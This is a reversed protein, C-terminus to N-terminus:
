ILFNSKHDCFTDTLNNCKNDYKNIKDCFCGNMNFLQDKPCTFAQIIKFLDDTESISDPCYYYKACNEPDRHFGSKKNLCSFQQSINLSIFHDPNKQIWYSLDNLVRNQKIFDNEIIIRSKSKIQLHDDILNDDKLIYFMKFSKTKGIKNKKSPLILNNNISSKALNSSYYEPMYEMLLSM